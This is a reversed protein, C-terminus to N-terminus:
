MAQLQEARDAVACAADLAELEYEDFEAGAIGTARLAANMKARLRQGATRKAM